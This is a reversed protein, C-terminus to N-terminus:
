LIYASLRPTLSYMVLGTLISLIMEVASFSTPVGAGLGGPCPYNCTKRSRRASYTDSVGCGRVPAIEPANSVFERGFKGGARDNPYVMEMM